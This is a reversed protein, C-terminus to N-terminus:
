RSNTRALSPRSLMLLAASTQTHTHTTFILDYKWESFQHSSQRWREFIESMVLNEQWTKCDTCFVRFLTQCTKLNVIRRGTPSTMKSTNEHLLASKSGRTEFQQRRPPFEQGLATITPQFVAASSHQATHIFVCTGSLLPVVCVTLSSEYINQSSM